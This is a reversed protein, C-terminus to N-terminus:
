NITAHIPSTSGQIQPSRIGIRGNGGAGGPYSDNSPGCKGGPSGQASAHSTNLNASDSAIYVGGGAGGGGGGMGGGSGCGQYGHAGPEGDTTVYGGGIAVTPAKFVVIGGGNGGKGPYGGDEDGGGEGGAGGLFISESTDADGSAAGGQGGLHNGQHCAGKSGDTGTGGQTGYGGGGGAACDQGAQGGGGAIGNASPATGTGSPGSPSEGSLGNQCRYTCGHGAGRFGRSTMSISGGQVDVKGTASFALIGGTTGDWAPATLTGGSVTVNKYQPMLVVQARTNGSTVYSNKLPKELQLQAGEKQKVLNEEWAGAGPGTTQHVIVRNGSAFQVGPDITLTSQGSSGQAFSRGTNITVTGSSVNLDGDQGTGWLSCVGGTCLAGYVCDSHSKCNKGHGCPQCTPGGCDVDTEDGNHVGDECLPKVCKGALCVQSECDGPGLCIKGVDCKPCEPGGCDQGTEQGNHVGDDCSPLKCLAMCEDDNDNNGDDCEEPPEVIANGCCPTILDYICGLDPDCSDATCTVGDHCDRAIKGACSGNVCSDSVTCANQDDCLANNPSFTCGKGAACADDTCPNSDDCQLAAGPVCVGADCHDDLTCVDGDTCPIDLSQHLCGGDPLCIDKTCPNDDDCTLTGTGKCVGQVCHDGTTCDNNDDCDAANFSSVCGLASECADETCPNGDDCDMPLGAVCAGDKCMDGLTCKNSDDCPLSAPSYQCGALMDCWDKTCGNGDHCDLQGEVVCKGGSCHDGTTCKNGDDCAAVNPTSV